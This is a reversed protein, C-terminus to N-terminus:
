MRARSRARGRRTPYRSTRWHSPLPQRRGSAERCTGRLSDPDRWPTGPACSAGRAAAAPLWRPPGLAVLCRLRTVCGCRLVM